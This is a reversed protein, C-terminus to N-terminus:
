TMWIGEKWKFPWLAEACRFDLGSHDLRLTRSMSYFRFPWKEYTLLYQLLLFFELYFHSSSPKFRLLWSLLQVMMKVRASTLAHKFHLWRVGVKQPRQNIWNNHFGSGLKVSRNFCSVSAAFVQCKRRMIRNELRLKCIWWNFDNTYRTVM